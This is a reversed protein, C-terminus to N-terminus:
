QNEASALISDEESIAIPGSPLELPSLDFTITVKGDKGIPVFDFDITTNDSKVAVSIQRGAVKGPDVAQLEVIFRGQEDIEPGRRIEFPVMRRREPMGQTRIAGRTWTRPSFVGHTRIAARTLRVAEAEVEPPLDQAVVTSSRMPRRVRQLQERLRNLASMVEALARWQVLLPIIEIHVVLTAVMVAKTILTSVERAAEREWFGKLRGEQYADTLCSLADSYRERERLVRALDLYYYPVYPGQRIAKLYCAEAEKLMNHRELFRALYAHAHHNWPTNRVGEELMKQAADILNQNEYLEAMKAYFLWRQSPGGTSGEFWVSEARESRRQSRDIRIYLEALRERCLTNLPDRALAEEYKRLAEELREQELLRDGEDMLAKAEEAGPRLSPEPAPEWPEYSEGENKGIM